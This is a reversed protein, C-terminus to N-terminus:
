SHYLILLFDNVYKKIPKKIIVVDMTEAKKKLPFSLLEWCSKRHNNSITIKESVPPYIEPFIIPPFFSVLILGFLVIEPVIPDYAKEIRGIDPM